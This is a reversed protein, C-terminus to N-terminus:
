HGKGEKEGREALEGILAEGRGTRDQGKGEKETLGNM